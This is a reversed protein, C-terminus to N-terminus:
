IRKVNHTSKSILKNSFNEVLPAFAILEVVNWWNFIIWQPKNAYKNCQMFHLNCKGQIHQWNFQTIPHLRPVSNSKGYKQQYFKLFIPPKFAKLHVFHHQKPNCIVELKNKLYLVGLIMLRNRYLNQHTASNKLQSM